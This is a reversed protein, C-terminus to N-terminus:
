VRKTTNVRWMVQDLKNCLVKCTTDNGIALDTKLDLTESEHLDNLYDDGRYLRLSVMEDLNKLGDLEHQFRVDSIVYNLGPKWVLLQFRKVWISRGTNLTHQGWETGLTQLMIRPTVGFYPDIEDKENGDLQEDSFGFMAKLADKLPQAMAYTEYGYTESIYKAATTKGTGRQGCIAIIM